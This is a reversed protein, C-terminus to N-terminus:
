EVTERLKQKCVRLIDTIDIEKAEITLNASVYNGTNSDNDVAIRFDTISGDADYVPTINTIRM